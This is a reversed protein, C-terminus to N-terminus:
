KKWKFDELFKRFRKKFLRESNEELYKTIGISLSIILIAAAFGALAKMIEEHNRPIPAKKGTMMPPEAYAKADLLIALNARAHAIHPIGSEPDNWTDAETVALIHRLAADIYTSYRIPNKRWSAEPYKKISSETNFHKQKKM